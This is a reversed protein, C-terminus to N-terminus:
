YLPCPGCRFMSNFMLLYSIPCRMIDISIGMFGLESVLELKAKTNELSEFVFKAPERKGSRYKNCEFSCLLTNEDFSIESKASYALKMAEEYGIVEDKSFAFPCLEIYAGSSEFEDSFDTFIKKEGEDFSPPNEMFAKGYSLIIGDYCEKIKGNSNKDLEAFLM